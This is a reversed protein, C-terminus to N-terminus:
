FLFCEARAIVMKPTGQLVVGLSASLSPPAKADQCSDRCSCIAALLLGLRAPQSTILRDAIEGRGVCVDGEGSRWATLAGTMSGSNWWGVCSPSSFETARAAGYSTGHNARGCGGVEAFWLGHEQCFRQRGVVM